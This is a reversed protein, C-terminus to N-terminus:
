DFSDKRRNEKKKGQLRKGELRKERSAKTPATARRRKAVHMADRVLKALRQEAAIRNQLQSRRSGDVVRLLGEADIRAALKERVRAKQVDDLAASSQFDWLVEIRTSSTNVHQGGAGGSRSARYVLESRPVAIADTIQLIDTM